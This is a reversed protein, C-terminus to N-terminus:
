TQEEKRERPGMDRYAYTREKRRKRDRRFGLYAFYVVLLGILAGIVQGVIEDPYMMKERGGKQRWM